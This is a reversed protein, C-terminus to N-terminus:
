SSRSRDASISRRFFFSRMMSSSTSTYLSIPPSATFSADREARNLRRRSNARFATSAAEPARYESSSFLQRKGSATFPCSPSLPLARATIAAFDPLGRMRVPMRRLTRGWGRGLAGSLTSATGSMISFFTLPAIVAEPRWPRPGNESTSRLTSVESAFWRFMIISRASSMDESSPLILWSEVSFSTPARRMEERSWLTTRRLAISAMVFSM